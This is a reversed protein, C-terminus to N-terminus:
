FLFHTFRVIFFSFLQLRRLVSLFIGDNLLLKGMLLIPLSHAAICLSLKKPFSSKGMAELGGIHVGFFYGSDLNNVLLGELFGFGLM